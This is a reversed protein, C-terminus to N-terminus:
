DLILLDLLLIQVKNWRITTNHLYKNYNKKGILKRTWKPIDEADFSDFCTVNARNVSLAILHNGIAKYADLHIVYAGM